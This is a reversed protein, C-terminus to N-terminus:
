IRIVKLIIYVIRGRRQIGSEDTWAALKVSTWDVWIELAYRLDMAFCLKTKKVEACTNKRWNEGDWFHWRWGGKVWALFWSCYRTERELGMNLRLLYYQYQRWDYYIGSPAVARENSSCNNGLYGDDWRSLSEGPCIGNSGVQKRQEKPGKTESLLWLPAAVGLISQLKGGHLVERLHGKARQTPDDGEGSHGDNVSHKRGDHVKVWIGCDQRKREFVGSKTEGYSSQMLHGRCRANGLRSPGYGRGTM